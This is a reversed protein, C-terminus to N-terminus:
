GDRERGKFTKINKALISSVLEAFAPTVIIKSLLITDAEEVDRLDEPSMAPPPESRWFSIYFENDTHSVIMENAFEGRVNNPNILRKKLRKGEFSTEGTRAKTM